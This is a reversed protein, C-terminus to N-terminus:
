ECERPRCLYLGDRTVSYDDHRERDEQYYPGDVRFGSRTLTVNFTGWVNAPMWKTAFREGDFSYIRMRINPGNAGFGQGGLLLWLEHPLESTNLRKVWLNGESDMDSGTIDALQLRNGAKRYARLTASSGRTAGAGIAYFLVLARDHPLDLLFAAPEAVATEGLIQELDNVVRNRDSGGLNGDTTDLVYADVARHIQTVIENSARMRQAQVDAMETQLKVDSCKVSCKARLEADQPTPQNIGNLKANLEAVLHQTEAKRRDRNQSGTQGVALASALLIVTVLWRGM